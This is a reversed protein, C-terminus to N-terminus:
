MKMSTTQNNDIVPVGQQLSYQLEQQLADMKNMIDTLQQTARDIITKLIALEREVKTIHELNPPLITGMNAEAPTEEMPVKMEPQGYLPTSQSLNLQSEPAIQPTPEVVNTPQVYPPIEEVTQGSNVGMNPVENVPSLAPAEIGQFRLNDLKAAPVFSVKYNERKFMGVLDKYVVNGTTM